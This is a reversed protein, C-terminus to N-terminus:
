RWYVTYDHKGERKEVPPLKMYDNYLNKLYESTGKSASLMHGEFSLRESPEFVSKLIIEKKGYGWVSVGIYESTEYPYKSALNDIRRILFGCGILKAILVVILRPLTAFPKDSKIIGTGAYKNLTRLFRLRSLHPKWKMEDKPFGDIPFIDIFAGSDRCDIRRHEFLYTRRDCMKTFPYIYNKTNDSNNIRYDAFPRDKAISLFREYDPRPMAVDIDDDWPIFGGHRVAGLVTGSMMYYRLNNSACFRDFEVLIDLIVRKYEEPEIENMSPIEGIPFTNM